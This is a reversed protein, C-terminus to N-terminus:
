DLKEQLTALGQPSSANLAAQVLPVNTRSFSEMLAPDNVLADRFATAGSRLLADLGHGTGRGGGGRRRSAGGSGGGGGYSVSVTRPAAAPAASAASPAATSQASMSPTATAPLPPSAFSAAAPPAALIVLVDDSRVGAVSLKAAGTLERGQFM